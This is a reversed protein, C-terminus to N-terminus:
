FLLFTVVALPILYFSFLYLRGRRILRLLLKLAIWGTVFACAMGAAMVEPRVAVALRGAEPAKWIAAGLIAPIAILFAFEGARERELGLFLSSSISIGSRSIGALVGVGQAIGILLARWPSLSRYTEAGGAHRALLLLAGTVGFAVSVVRPAGLVTQELRDMGLGVVATAVSTLVILLFLRRNERDEELPAGGAPVRALRVLSALIAGLRRRFVIAVVALTAIHLMIDYLLPIAQLGLLRRFVQLHGSSSIPLFETAGQIFGFLLSNWLDM